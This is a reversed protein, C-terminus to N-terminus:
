IAHSILKVARAVHPRAKSAAPLKSIAAQPPPLVVRPQAVTVCAPAEVVVPAAPDHGYEFAAIAFVRSARSEAIVDAFTDLSWCAHVNLSVPL